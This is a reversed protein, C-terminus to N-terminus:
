AQSHQLLPAAVFTMIQFSQEGLIHLPHTQHLLHMHLWICGRCGTGLPQYVALWMQRATGLYDKPQECIIPLAGEAGPHKSSQDHVSVCVCGM